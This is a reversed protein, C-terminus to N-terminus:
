KGSSSEILVIVFGFLLFAGFVAMNVTRKIKRKAEGLRKQELAVSDQYAKTYPLQATVTDCAGERVIVRREVSSREPYELKLRYDGPKIKANEWPTFGSEKEDFLVRAGSPDSKVVLCGPRVLTVALDQASDARVDVILKKIFYSKKRVLVTHRGIPLSDIALPTLGKEMSDVEVLASDPTSVIRLKGIGSLPAPTLSPSTKKATDTQNVSQALQATAPAAQPLPKASKQAFCLNAAGALLVALVIGSKHIM